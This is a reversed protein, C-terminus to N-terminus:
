DHLGLEGGGLNKRVELTRGELGAFISFRAAPLGIM